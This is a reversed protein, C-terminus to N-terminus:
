KTCKKKEGQPELKRNNWTEEGYWKDLDICDLSEKIDKYSKVYTIAGDTAVHLLKSLKKCALIYKNIGDIELHCKSCVRIRLENLPHHNYKIPSKKSIVRRPIIHHATLNATKKMCVPCTGEEKPSIVYKFNGRKMIFVDPDLNFRREGKDDAFVVSEIKM